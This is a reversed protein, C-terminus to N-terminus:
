KIEGLTQTELAAVENARACTRSKYISVYYIYKPRARHKMNIPASGAASHQLEPKLGDVDGREPDINVSRRRVLPHQLDGM